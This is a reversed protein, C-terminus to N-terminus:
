KHLAFRCESGVSGDTGGSPVVAERCSQLVQDEPVSSQMPCLGRSKKIACYYDELAAETRVRARMLDMRLAEFPHLDATGLLQRVDTQLRQEEAIAHNFDLALVALDLDGPPKSRSM